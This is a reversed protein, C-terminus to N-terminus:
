GGRIVVFERFFGKSDGAEGGGAYHTGFCLIGVLIGYFICLYKVYSKVDM